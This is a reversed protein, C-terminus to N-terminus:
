RLPAQWSDGWDTYLKQLFQDWAARPRSPPFPEPPIAWATNHLMQFKRDPGVRGVRMPRWTYHTDEDVRVDGEPAALSRGKLAALVARTEVSGAQQVARAWLHIGFYVTEMPDSVVRRSGFRDRFKRVLAANEARDISQFYSWAAYHGVGAEGLGLLDNEGMSFSLVPTKDARLGAQYLERFFASNTDGNITNVILDPKEERIARITDQVEFGGFPIYREGVVRADPFKKGVYVSTIGTRGAL